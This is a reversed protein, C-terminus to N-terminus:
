QLSEIDRKIQEARKSTLSNVIFDHNQAFLEEPTQNLAKELYFVFEEYSTINPFYKAAELRRFEENDPYRSLLACGSVAAEYFRPTMTCIGNTDDRANDLGSCGTLAVKSSALLNMYDQRGQIPNIEQGTTSIYDPNKGGERRFVYNINEHEKAYRLMYEHLVPNKRGAQVVDINKDRYLDFNESYYKDSISLPMYKVASSPSLTKIRNFADISTVYFLKFNKTFKIVLEIDDNSWLDLFVPLANKDYCVNIETVSMVFCLSLDSNIDQHVKPLSAKKIKRRIQAIFPFIKKVRHKFGHSIQHVNITRKQVGLYESLKDEWEYCVDRFLQDSSFKQSLVEGIM